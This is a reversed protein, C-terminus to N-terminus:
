VLLCLICTFFVGVFVVVMKFIDCIVILFFYQGLVYIYRKWSIMLLALCSSAVPPSVIGSIDLNLHYKNFNSSVKAKFCSHMCLKSKAVPLFVRWRLSVVLPGSKHSMLISNPCYLMFAWPQYRRLRQGLALYNAIFVFSTRSVAFLLMAAALCPPTHNLVLM